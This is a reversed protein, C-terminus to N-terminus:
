SKKLWPLFNPEPDSPLKSKQAQLLPSLRGWYLFLLTSECKGVQFFETVRLIKGWLCFISGIQQDATGSWPSLCYIATKKCGWSQSFFFLTVWHYSSSPTSVRHFCPGGVEWVWKCWTSCYLQTLLAWSYRSALWILGIIKLGWLWNNGPSCGFFFFTTLMSLVTIRGRQETRTLVWRSGQTWRKPRLCLFSMSTNSHSGDLLILPSSCM